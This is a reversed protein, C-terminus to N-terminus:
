SFKDAINFYTIFVTTSVLFVCIENRLIQHTIKCFLFARSKNVRADIYVYVSFVRKLYELATDNHETLSRSADIRALRDM